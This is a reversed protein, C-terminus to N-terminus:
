AADPSGETEPADMVDIEGLVDVTVNGVGEVWALSDALKAAAQEPTCVGDELELGILIGFVKIPGADRALM